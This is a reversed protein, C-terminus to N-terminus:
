PALVFEAKLANLLEFTNVWPVKFDVCVNPISVKRRIAPQHVEHTVVTAGTQMAKAILWPDAGSLFDPVAGAKLNPMTAVHNAITTFHGQTAADSTAQFFQSHSAAWASLEDNGMSLEHAIKDISCVDDSGHKILLWDWYGPCIRMQYYRNKAEIFTNADLIYTM